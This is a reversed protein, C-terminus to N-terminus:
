LQVFYTNKIKKLFDIIFIMQFIQLFLLFDIEKLIDILFLWLPSKCVTKINAIIELCIKLKIKLM